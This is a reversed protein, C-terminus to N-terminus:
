WSSRDLALTLYVNGLASSLLEAVCPITVERKPSVNLATLPEFFEM